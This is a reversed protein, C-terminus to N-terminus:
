QFFHYDFSFHKELPNYNYYLRLTNIRVCFYISKIFIVYRLM